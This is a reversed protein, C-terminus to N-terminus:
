QFLRLSNLFKRMPFHHVSRQNKFPLLNKRFCYLRKEGFPIHFPVSSLVDLLSPSLRKELEEPHIKKGGSNIAFDSRGKWRFSHEDILEVVDTTPIPTSHIEPYHITLCDNESTFHIGPLSHYENEQGIKRLAVHSITETM